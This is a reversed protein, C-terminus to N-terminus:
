LMGALMGQAIYKECTVFNKSKNSIFHTGPYEMKMVQTKVSYNLIGVM